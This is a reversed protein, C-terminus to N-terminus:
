GILVLQSLATHIYCKKYISIIWSEFVTAKKEPHQCVAM